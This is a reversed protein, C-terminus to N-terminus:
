RVARPRRWAAAGLLPELMTARWGSYIPGAFFGVSAGIGILGLARGTGVPYLRAVMATAAPHYFSGGIGAIVLAAVAWGYNPAFALARQVRAVIWDEEVEPSGYEYPGRYVTPIKDGWNLHPPPSPATWEVTNAEWPNLPAKKGAAVIARVDAASKPGWGGGQM